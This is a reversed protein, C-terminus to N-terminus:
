TWGQASDTVYVQYAVWCKASCTTENSGPKASSYPTGCNPCKNWRATGTMVEANILAYAMHLPDVNYTGGHNLAAAIREGHAVYDAWEGM